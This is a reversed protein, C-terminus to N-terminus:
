EYPVLPVLPSYPHQDLSILTLRLPCLSKVDQFRNLFHLHQPVRSRQRLFVAITLFSSIDQNLSCRTGPLSGPFTGQPLPM